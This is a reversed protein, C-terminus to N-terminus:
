LRRTKKPTTDRLNKKSGGTIKVCYKYLLLRSYPANLPESAAIPWAKMVKKEFRVVVIIRDDGMNLVLVLVFFFPVSFVGLAIVVKKGRCQYRFSAVSRCMVRELYNCRFRGM